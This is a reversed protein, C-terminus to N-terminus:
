IKHTGWPISGPINPSGYKMTSIRVAGGLLIGVKVPVRYSNVIYM